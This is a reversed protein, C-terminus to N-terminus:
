RGSPNQYSPPIQRFTFDVRGTYRELDVRLNYMGPTGGARLFVRRNGPICAQSGAVQGNPYRLTLTMRGSRGDCSGSVEVPTATDSVMKAYSNSGQANFLWTPMESVYGVRIGITFYLAALAVVLLLLLGRM